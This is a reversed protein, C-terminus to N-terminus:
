PRKELIALGALQTRITVPPGRPLPIPGAAIAVRTGIVSGFIWFWFRFILDLISGSINQFHFWFIRSYEPINQFPGGRYPFHSWFVGFHSELVPTVLM